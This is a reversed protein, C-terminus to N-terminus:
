SIKSSFAFGPALLARPVKSSAKPIFIFDDTFFCFESLFNNRFFLRKRDVSHNIIHGTVIGGTRRRFVNFETYFMESWALSSSLKIAACSVFFVEKPPFSQQSKEKNRQKRNQLSVSCGTDKGIIGMVTAKKEDPDSCYFLNKKGPV